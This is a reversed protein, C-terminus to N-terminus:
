KETFVLDGLQWLVATGQKVIGPNEKTQGTKCLFTVDANQKLDYITLFVEAEDYETLIEQAIESTVPNLRITVNRKKKIVDDHLVGDMTYKEPLASVPVRTIIMGTKHAYQTFEKFNMKFTKCLM